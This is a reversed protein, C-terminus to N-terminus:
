AAERLHHEQQAPPRRGPLLSALGGVTGLAVAGLAWWLGHWDIGFADDLSYRGAGIAAVAFAVTALVLPFEIGGDQNWVGKKWHVAAIASVMVGTLMAAAAPLLLGFALLLGGAFEAGGAVFAMPTGPRFGMSEFFGGTNRLGHGGFWGFLKQAGHGAFLGGVVVRLVLLAINMRTGNGSEVADIM